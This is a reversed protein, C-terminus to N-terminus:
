LLALEAGSKAILATARQKVPELRASNKLKHARQETWDYWAQVEDMRELPTFRRIREIASERLFFKCLALEYLENLELKSLNACVTPMGFPPATGFIEPRPKLNVYSGGDGLLRMEPIAKRARLYEVTGIDPTLISASLFFIPLDLVRDIDALSSELTDHPAGIIFGCVVAIGAADLVKVATKNMEVTTAKRYYDLSRQDLLEVGLFVKRCGAAYIQRALAATMFESRANCTWTVRKETLLDMLQDFQEHQLLDDDQFYILDHGFEDVMYDLDAAIYEVPRSVLRGHILYTSCFTCRARCSQTCIYIQPSKGVAKWWREHLRGTFDTRSQCLEYAFAPPAITALSRDFAPGSMRLQGDLEFCIGRAESGEGFSPQFLKTLIHRLAVGGEGRVVIHAYGVQPAVTPHAGGVVICFETPDLHALLAATREVALTYLGVLIFRAKAPRLWEALARAMDDDDQYAEEDFYKLEPAFPILGNEFDIQLSRAINLLGLSAYRPSFRAKRSDVLEIQTTRFGHHVLAIRPSGATISFRGSDRLMGLDLM